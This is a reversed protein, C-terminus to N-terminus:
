HIFVRRNTMNQPPDGIFVVSLRSGAICFTAGDKITTEVPLYVYELEPNDNIESNLLLEGHQNTGCSLVKGDQSEFLSHYM